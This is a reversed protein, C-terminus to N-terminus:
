IQNQPVLITEINTKKSPTLKAKVLIDRLNRPRSVAIQM